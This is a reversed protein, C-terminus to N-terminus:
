NESLRRLSKIFGWTIPDDSNQVKNKEYLKFCQCIFFGVSKLCYAQLFM